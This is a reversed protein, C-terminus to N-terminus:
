KAANDLQSLQEEILKKLLLYRNDNLDVILDYIGNDQCFKDDIGFFKREKEIAKIWADNDTRDKKQWCPDNAFLLYLFVVQETKLAKRLHLLFALRNAFQYYNNMWDVGSLHEEAKTLELREKIKKRSPEKAGCKGSSLEGKHAKAEILVLVKEGNRRTIVAIGDWNPGGEPWFDNFVDLPLELGEWFSPDEEKFRGQYFWNDYFEKYNSSQIPSFWKVSGGKWEDKLALIDNNIVEPNAAALRIDLLSGKERSSSM